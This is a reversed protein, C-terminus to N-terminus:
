AARDPDPLVRNIARALEQRSFPKRLLEWGPPSDRDAELLESSYGSMLLVSLGPLRRQVEDALQTGRLGPGLAIDSLLLDFGPNADLALLAQEGSAAATVRCGLAALFAHAVKRVEADDEV